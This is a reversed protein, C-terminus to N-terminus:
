CGGAVATPSQLGVFAILLGIGAGIAHKLSEPVSDILRERFGVASLIVFIGGAIFNAGLAIQWSVGMAMCVGFAFYFNHGMAPALAIPYNALLGMLLTAIASAICTAAMVAGFDMGVRSMLAPQVGIIYSMAAFTTAGALLENRLAQRQGSKFCGKLLPLM